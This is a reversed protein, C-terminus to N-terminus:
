DSRAVVARVYSDAPAGLADHAAVFLEHARRGPWGEPLLETPLDPDRFPFTRYSAVLEVRQRLADPGPAPLPGTVSPLGELRAVLEAYDRGLGELDWCRAAM